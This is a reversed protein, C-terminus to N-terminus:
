RLQIVRVYDIELIEQTTGDGNRVLFYPTLLEDDCITATAATGATGNIYPTVSTVGNILLGFKVWNGSVLTHVGAVAGTNTGNKSCTLAMAAAGNQCSFSIGDQPLVDAVATLDEGANVLGLSVETTTAVGTFKVRAEYWLTKGAALKFPAGTHNVQECANDTTAQCTLILVGGATVDSIADTGTGSSYSTWNGVSATNDYETFDDFLEHCVAAFNPDLRSPVATWMANTASTAVLNTADWEVKVDDGDGFIIEDSDGMQLEASDFLVRGASNDALVYDTSAGLFIKVDMDLTGNGVALTGVNDTVPVLYMVDGSALDFPEAKLLAAKWLRAINTAGM